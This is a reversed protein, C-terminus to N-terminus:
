VEPDFEEVKLYKKMLFEKTELHDESEIGVKHLEKKLNKSREKVNVGNSCAFPKPFKSLLPLLPSELLIQDRYSKSVSAWQDCTMLACRSPNIITDKWFPDIVWDNPLNHIYQLTEGWNVYFRGEYSIDLNHFIHLFSTNRFISGFHTEDRAYGPTFATFWDNTIIVEPIIEVSCLLQLAAKSFFTSSKLRSINDHGPYPEFFHVSHHIFYVKMGKICGYHIGFVEHIEGLKVSINYLYKIGFEGKPDLKIYEGTNKKHEFYPVIVVIDEGLDVFGTALEDIMVSIGGIKIWPSLEPTIFAITRMSNKNVAAELLRFVSSDTHCLRM